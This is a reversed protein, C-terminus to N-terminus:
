EEFGALMVIRGDLLGPPLGLAAVDGRRAALAAADDLLPHAPLRGRAPVGLRRLAAAVDQQNADAKRAYTM